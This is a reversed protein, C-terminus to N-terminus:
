ARDNNFPNNEDIAGINNLINFSNSYEIHSEFSGQVSLFEKIEELNM